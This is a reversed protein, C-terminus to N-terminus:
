AKSAIAQRLERLVSENEAKGLSPHVFGYHVGQERCWQRKFSVIEEVTHGYPPLPVTFDLLVGAHPLVLDFFMQHGAFLGCTGLNVRDGGRMVWPVNVHFVANVPNGLARLIWDPGPGVLAGVHAVPARAEDPYDVDGPHFFGDGSPQGGLQRGAQNLAGEIQQDIGRGSNGRRGIAM